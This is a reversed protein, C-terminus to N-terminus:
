AVWMEADERLLFEARWIYTFATWAIDDTYGKDKDLTALDVAAQRVTYLSYHKSMLSASFRCMEDMTALNNQVAEEDRPKSPAALDAQLVCNELCMAKIVRGDQSRSKIWRDFKKQTWDIDAESM